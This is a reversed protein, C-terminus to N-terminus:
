IKKVKNKNAFESCLYLKMRTKWHFILLISIDTDHAIVSVKSKSNAYTVAKAVIMTDVDKECVNREMLLNLFCHYLSHNIRVTGLFSAHSCNLQMSLGVKITGSTRGCRREHELNKIYPGNEHGGFVIWCTGYNKM